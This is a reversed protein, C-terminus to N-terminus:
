QMMNARWQQLTSTNREKDEGIKRVYDMEALKAAREEFMKEQLDRRQTRDRENVQKLIDGQHSKKGLQAQTVNAEHQMTQRMVEDELLRKEHDQQWQEEASWLKKTVINQHRSDYVERLLSIRANDEKRWRDEKMKWQKEAEDQTLHEILEEYKKQDETQQFYAKQLEIVEHRRRMREEEELRALAAEHDLAQQLMDKDRQKESLLQQDRLIQEADNHRLLDLNRERNLAFKQREMEKEQAEENKWQQMLMTREQATLHSMQEKTMVRTDKQWNLINTTDQIEKQKAIKEEREREHKKMEDLKWLQAYLQEEMIDAGMKEKKEMLQKERELQCHMTSFKSAEKRLDDATEKFRRELLREVEQKREQERKMKLDFCRQAMKERVQEPTELNAM